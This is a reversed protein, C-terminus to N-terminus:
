SRLRVGEVDLRPAHHITARRRVGAVLVEVEGGREVEPSALYALALSEEVYPGFGGSTVYGIQQGARFVSEGGHADAGDADVVLTALKERTGESLRRQAADRGMFEGKNWRVFRHLGSEAPSYDPGLELGWSPYSKELRLWMLARSGCLKLGLTEGAALLRTLFAAQYQVPFHIEYGLDGTFSVRIVVAEPCGELDWERASLFPLTADGVDGPAFAGLFERSRPGAIHFGAWASSLNEVRVDGESPMQLDFWREHIRQASGAGVLLFRGTGLNSVTFDGMLRGTESLMPALGTRGPAPIAGALLGDLWAAANVGDVLFKSFSSVEFLGVGERVARGEAVVADFWNQRDFSHRDEAPEGARAYWLPVELGFSEGWVAGHRSLEDHAPTTRVPRGAAFQQGPYIRHSRHEYFWATRARTYSRGAWGGFRAVDWPTVDLSPEGEVMWEALVKGVGGGQNFGTMVGAACFYGRKGPFPGILPALDPSFIM